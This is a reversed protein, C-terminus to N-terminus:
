QWQSDLWVLRKRCWGTLYAVEARYTKRQKYGPANPWQRYGFRQWVKDDLNADEELTRAQEELWVLSEELAGRKERWRGAVQARFGEDEWLRQFWYRSQIWLGEAKDCDHYNINGCSIDFDWVPGMHLLEDGSDYYLFCSDQFRADHNKTYENVLYWDIFSAEDAMSRWGTEKDAFNESYLLREFAKLKEEAARYYSNDAGEKERSSFVVGQDSRFNWARNLRSNVEALFSSDAPDEPLPIRGPGIEAKEMLAYLGLYKDNLVLHVFQSRPTWGAQDFVTAAIRYAYVNRMSTKDTVNAQLVWKRAPSMGFLSLEEDTKLLYSRKATDFTRWTSNGRGRIRARHAQATRGAAADEAQQWGAFFYANARKYDDKTKVPKGKDTRVAVIPLTSDKLALYADLKEEQAMRFSFILGATMLAFPFVFILPLRPVKM